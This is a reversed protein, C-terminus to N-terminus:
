LCLLFPAIRINTSHKLPKIPPPEYWGGGEGYSLSSRRGAVRAQQEYVARDRDARDWQGENGGLTDWSHSRGLSLQKNTVLMPLFLFLLFLKVSLFASM